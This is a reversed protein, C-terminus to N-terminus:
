RNDSNLLTDIRDRSAKINELYEKTQDKRFPWTLRRIGQTQRPGTISWMKQLPRGVAELEAKLDAPMNGDAYTEAVHFLTSCLHWVENRLAKSESTADLL